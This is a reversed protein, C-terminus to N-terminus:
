GTVTQWGRATNSKAWFKCLQTLRELDACLTKTARQHVRCRAAVSALLWYKTGILQQKSKKNYLKIIYLGTRNFHLLLTGKFIQMRELPGHNLFSCDDMSSLVLYCDCKGHRRMARQIFWSNWCNWCNKCKETFEKKAIIIIISNKRGILLLPKNKHCSSVNFKILFERKIEEPSSFRCCCCLLLGRSPLYKSISLYKYASPINVWVRAM